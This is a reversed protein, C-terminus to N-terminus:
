GKGLATSALAHLRDILEARDEAKTKSTADLGSALQGLVQEVTQKRMEAQTRRASSASVVLTAAVAGWFVSMVLAVLTSFCFGTKSAFFM